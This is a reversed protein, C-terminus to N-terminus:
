PLHNRTQVFANDSASECKRERVRKGSCVSERMEGIVRVSKSERKKEREKDHKKIVRERWGGERERHRVRMKQRYSM